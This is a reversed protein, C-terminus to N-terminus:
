PEHRLAGLVLQPPITEGPWSSFPFRGTIELAGLHTARTKTFNSGGFHM